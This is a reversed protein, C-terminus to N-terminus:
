GLFCFLVTQRVRSIILKAQLQM